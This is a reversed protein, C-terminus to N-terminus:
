RRPLAYNRRLLGPPMIRITDRRVMRDNINLNIEVPHNVPLNCITFKGDAEIPVVTSYPQIRIKSLPATVGTGSSYRVWRAEITVNDTVVGTELVSGYLLGSRLLSDRSEVPPKVNGHAPCVEAIVREANPVFLRVNALGTSDLNLPRPSPQVPLSDLAVHAFSINYEGAPISDLRFRGGASTTTTFATGSLYVQAGELPRGQLSDFVTGEVAVHPVLTVNRAGRAQIDLVEGGEENAGITRNQGSAVNRVVTPGRIYWRSVIWAGNHLQAFEVRGGAFRDDTWEPRGTYSYELFRLELSGQDLWLVGRIDPLRRGGVPAFGLGILGPRDSERTIRFCHQDLFSDSLLLEADPAYLNTEGSQDRVYGYQALSDPDATRFTRRGTGTLFRIRPEGVVRLSADLERTMLRYRFTASNGAWVAVTLVKRVENWLQATQSSREPRGVCRSETAVTIEPLRLALTELAIRFSRPESATLAFQAVTGSKFGIRDARLSYRAAPARFLFEGKDNTLVGAIQRGEANLLMVFVGQMPAGSAQDVVLGRAVQAAATTSIAVTLVLADVFSHTLHKM